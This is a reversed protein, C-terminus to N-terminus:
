NENMMAFEFMAKDMSYESGKVELYLNGHSGFSRKSAIRELASAPNFARELSSLASEGSRFSIFGTSGSSSTSSGRCRSLIVQSGLTAGDPQAQVEWVWVGVGDKIGRGM